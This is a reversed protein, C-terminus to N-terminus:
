EKKLTKASANSVFVAAMDRVFFMYKENKSNVTFVM